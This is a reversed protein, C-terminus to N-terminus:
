KKLRKVRINKAKKNLNKCKRKDEQYNKKDKVAKISWVELLLTIEKGRWGDAWLQKKYEAYKHELNESHKREIEEIMSRHKAKGEGSLQKSIAIRVPDLYSRSSKNKLIGMSKYARRREQRNM